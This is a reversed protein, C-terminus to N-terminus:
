TLKISINEPPLEIQQELDAEVLSCKLPKTAEIYYDHIAQNGLASFRFKDILWAMPKDRNITSRDLSLFNNDYIAVDNDLNPENIVGHTNLAHVISDLYCEHAKSNKKEYQSIKNVAYIILDKEQEENDIGFQQLKFTVVDDFPVNELSMSSLTKSFEDPTFDAISEVWQKAQKFEETQPYQQLKKNIIIDMSELQNLSTFAIANVSNSRKPITISNCKLLPELRSAYNEHFEHPATLASIIEKKYKDLYFKSENMEVYVYRQQLNEKMALLKPYNSDFVSHVGSKKAFGIQQVRMLESFMKRDEDIQEKNIAVDPRVVAYLEKGDDLVNKELKFNIVHYLDSSEHIVDSRNLLRKMLVTQNNEDRKAYLEQQKFSMSDISTNESKLQQGVLDLNFKGAYHVFSRAVVNVNGLKNIANITWAKDEFATDGAHEGHSVGNNHQEHQLVSKCGVKKYFQQFQYADNLVQKVVNAPIGTAASVNAYKDNNLDTMLKAEYNQLVISYIWRNDYIEAIDHNLDVFDNTFKEIELMLKTYEPLNGLDDKAWYIIKDLESDKLNNELSKNFDYHTMFKVLIDKYESTLVDSILPYSNLNLYKVELNKEHILWETLNNIMLTQGLGNANSRVTNLPIESPIAAKAVRDRQLVWESVTEVEVTANKGRGKKVEKQKTVLQANFMDSMKKALLDNLSIDIIEPLEDVDLQLKFQEVEKETLEKSKVALNVQISSATKSDFLNFKFTGDPQKNKSLIYRSTVDPIEADDNFALMQHIGWMANPASYFHINDLGRVNNFTITDTDFYMLRKNTAIDMSDAILHNGDKLIESTKPLNSFVIRADYSTNHATIIASQGLKAKNEFFDYIFNDIEEINKGFDIAMDNSINTLRELAAPIVFTDPKVLFSVNEAVIQKNYHFQNNEIEFSYVQELGNDRFLTSLRNIPLNTLYYKGNYVFHYNESSGITFDNRNFIQQFHNDDHILFSDGTVTKLMKRNVEQTSITKGSQPNVSYVMLSINFLPANGFGAAEVDLTCDLQKGSLRLKEIVCAQFQQFDHAGNVNYKFFPLDKIQETTLFEINNGTTKQKGYFDILSEIGEINKEFEITPVNSLQNRNKLSDFIFVGDNMYNFKVFQSFGNNNLEVLSSNPILISSEGSKSLNIKIPTWGFPKNKAIDVLSTQEGTSDNVAVLFQPNISIMPTIRYFHAVMGRINTNIKALINLSDIDSIINIDQKDQYRPTNKALEVRQNLTDAITSIIYETREDTFKDKKTTIIFGAAREHGPTEIKVGLQSELSKRVTKNLLISMDFTSRFSGSIVTNSTNDLTMAVGSIAQNYAKNLLKRNLVRQVNKNVVSIVANETIYQKLINTNRLETLIIKECDRLETFLLKMHYYLDQEYASKNDDIMFNFILPRLQELYNNNGNYFSFDSTNISGDILLALRSQTYSINQNFKTKQTAAQETFEAKEQESLGRYKIYDSLLLHAMVNLSQARKNQEALVEQNLQTYPSFDITTTILSNMSNVINMLSQLELATSITDLGMPKHTPHTQVYDLMNSIFSLEEINSLINNYFNITDQQEVQERISLNQVDPMRSKVMATALLGFTSAGSINFNKFFDNSRQKKENSYKKHLSKELLTRQKVINQDQCDVSIDYHPNFVVTRDNEQVCMGLEPNHHDTILLKVNPHSQNIKIQENVSNIGNDATVVVCEENDDIGYNILLESVLDSTFGRTQNNAVARAYEIHFYQNEKPTLANRLQIAISQAFSGDNDNDTILIVHQQNELASEITTLTIHYNDIYEMLEQIKSFDRHHMKKGDEIGLLHNRAFDLDNGFNTEFINKWVPEPIDYFINEEGIDLSGLSKRVLIRFENLTYNDLKTHKSDTYKM